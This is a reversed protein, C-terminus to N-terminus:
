PLLAHRLCDPQCCAFQQALLGRRLRPSRRPFRDSFAEVLQRAEGNYRVLIAMQSPLVGCAQLAEIKEYLLTLVDEQEEGGNGTAAVGATAAQKKKKSSAAVM